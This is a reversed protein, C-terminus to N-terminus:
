FSTKFLETKPFGPPGQGPNWGLAVDRVSKFFPWRTAIIDIHKGDLDRPCNHLLEGVTSCEYFPILLHHVNDYLRDKFNTADEETWKGMVVYLIRGQGERTEPRAVIYIGYTVRLVLM